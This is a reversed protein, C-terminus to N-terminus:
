NKVRTREEWMRPERFGTWDPKKQRSGWFFGFACLLVGFSKISLLELDRGFVGMTKETVCAILFISLFSFLIGTKRQTQIARDLSLVALPFALVFLHFWALPHVIAAMGLWGAWREHLSLLSAAKKWYLFVLAAALFTVMLETKKEKAPVHFWRLFLAPLGQNDRGRIKEGEFLSGGSSTAKAWSGFLSVPNKNPEVWLAPLSLIGFVPILCLITKWKKHLDPIGFAAFLTFVKVSLAWFLFTEKGKSKAWLIIALFIVTCQGDLAHVAWIGWFLFLPILVATRSCGSKLLFRCIYFISFVQAGGWIWRAWEEPFTALPLFAPLIWPPYKFVMAGDRAVSYVEQGSFILRAAKWFVLFDNGQYVTDRVLAIAGVGLLLYLVTTFFDAAIRYTKESLSLLRM